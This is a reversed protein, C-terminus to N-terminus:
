AFTIFESGFATQATAANFIVANTSVADLLAIINVTSGTSQTIILDGFVGDQDADGNSFNYDASSAGTVHIVDNNNFGSVLVNGGTLADDTLTYATGVDLAIAQATSPSGVDVSVNTGGPVIAGSSGGSSGFVIFEAGFATKASAANAVYANEAVANLIAIENFAGDTNYTIILDGYVGNGDADGNTFSYQAATAGSVHIVDGKDFGTIQVNSTVGAADSLTHNAGPALDIDVTSALTGVDLSIGGGGLDDPTAASVSTIAQNGLMVKGTATDYRLLRTDGLFDLTMGDTGFPITIDGKLSTLIVSSGALYAHFASAADPLYLADGGRNFSADLLLDGSLYHIKELGTTGFVRHDGGISVDAGSSLFVRGEADGVGGIPLTTGDTPATIVVPSGTLAQSGIKAVNASEDFYLKRVGDGFVLSVGGVGIPISFTTEGSTLSVVSGLLAAKYDAAAGPVRIIDGGRNFSADFTLEGKYKVLTIDQFGNTGVISGVGGVTDVLGDATFLRFPAPSSGVSSPPQVFAVQVAVTQTAKGGKGDDVTVSFSDTGSYGKTPTYTFLGNTGGTVTGHLATGATYTLKDGDADTAAVSIQKAADQNTSVTQTAAVKPLANADNVGISISQTVSGGRGDSVTVRISDPGTFNVNPTYIFVGNTGGTITGHLAATATYTLKDGDPDVASVTFTKAVGLATTVTQSAAALTPANNAVLELTNSTTNLRYQGDSFRFYEVNRITDTGVRDANITVSGDRNVIITAKAFAANFIATDIGGGGDITDNGGEGTLQDNGDGGRLIDDGAGGFLSDDGAGADLTDSGTSGRLEQTGAAATLTAGKVGLVKVIGTFNSISISGSTLLTNGNVVDLKLNADTINANVTVANALGAGSLTVVQSGLASVALSYGGAAGSTASSGGISVTLGSVGEGISYFNDKDKDTYAVGTVFFKGRAGFNETVVLPGVGTATSTEATVDIGVETFNASMINLRHGAPVQMGTDGAGWDIFFGAQAYLVSKAYSYVNEGLSTAGAYGAATVRGALAAEGSVQHSQTDAAIMAASHTEAAGALTDSWALAGVAPLAYLQDTLIKGNVNYFKVADNIAADLSLMPSTSYIYRNLSGLPNLRAENTLELLYQEEATPSAM